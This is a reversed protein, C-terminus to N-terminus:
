SVGRVNPMGQRPASEHEYMERGDEMNWVAYKRGTTCRDERGAGSNYYLRSAYIDSEATDSTELIFQVDSGSACGQPYTEGPRFLYSLSISFPGPNSARINRIEIQRKYVEGAGAITRYTQCSSMSRTPGSFVQSSHATPRDSMDSQSFAFSSSRTMIACIRICDNSRRYM